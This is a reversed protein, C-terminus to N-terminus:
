PFRPEKNNWFEGVSVPLLGLMETLIIWSL